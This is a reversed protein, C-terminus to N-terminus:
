LAGITRSRLEFRNFVPALHEAIGGGDGGHEVPEEVVTV